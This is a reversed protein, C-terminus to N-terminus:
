SPRLGGSCCTKEGRDSLAKTGTNTTSSPQRHQFPHNIWQLITIPGTRTVPYRSRQEQHHEALKHTRRTILRLCLLWAITHMNLSSISSRSRRWRTHDILRDGLTIKGAISRGRKTNHHLETHKLGELTTSPPDMALLTSSLQHYQHLSNLFGHNGLYLSRRHYRTSGAEGRQAFTIIRM